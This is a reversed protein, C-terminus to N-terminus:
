EASIFCECKEEKEFRTYSGGLLIFVCRKIDIGDAYCFRFDATMNM